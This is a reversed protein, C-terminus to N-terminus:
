ASNSSEPVRRRRRRVFLAVVLGAFVAVIAALTWPLAWSHAATDTVSQAPCSPTLM